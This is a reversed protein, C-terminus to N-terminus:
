AQGTMNLVGEVGSSCADPLSIIVPFSFPTSCIVSRLLPSFYQLLSRDTVIVQGNECLFQVETLGTGDQSQTKAAILVTSFLMEEHGTCQLM